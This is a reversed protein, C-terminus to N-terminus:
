RNPTAMVANSLLAILRVPLESVYRVATGNTAMNRPCGLTVVVPKSAVGNADTALLDLTGGLTDVNACKIGPTTMAAPAAELSAALATAQGATLVLRRASQTAAAPYGCVVIKAVGHTFLPESAGFQGSGGGGPLLYRPATTPCEGPARKGVADHSAPAGVAPRHRVDASPVSGAHRTVQRAPAAADGGASTTSRGGTGVWSAIGVGIVAVAAAAGAALYVRRRRERRVWSAHATLAGADLTEGEGEHLAARLQAESPSM